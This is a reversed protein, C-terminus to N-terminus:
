RFGRRGGCRAASGGSAGRRFRFHVLGSSVGGHGFGPRRDAVDGGGPQVDADKQIEVGACTPVGAATIGNLALARSNLAGHGPPQGRNAFLGPIYVPHDPAARDLAHREPPRREALTAAGDFFFPPTKAAM